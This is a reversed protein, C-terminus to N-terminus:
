ICNQVRGGVRQCRQVLMIWKTSNIIDIIAIVIISSGVYRVHCLYVRSQWFDLGGSFIGGANKYGSRLIEMESSGVGVGLSSM